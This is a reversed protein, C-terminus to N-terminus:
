RLVEQEDQKAENLCKVLMRSFCNGFQTREDLPLKFWLRALIIEEEPTEHQQSTVATREHQSLARGIRDVGFFSSRDPEKRLRHTGIVSGDMFGSSSDPAGLAVSTRDM